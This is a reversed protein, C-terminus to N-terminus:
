EMGKKDPVTMIDVNTKEQKGPDIEAKKYFEKSVERHKAANEDISNNSRKIVGQSELVNYDPTFVKYNQFGTDMRKKSADEAENIFTQAADKSKKHKWNSSGYDNVYFGSGVFKLTPVDYCRGKRKGCEKCKTKEPAKGINYDREWYIKCDHCAWTYQPM